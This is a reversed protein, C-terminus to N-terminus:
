DVNQSPAGNRYDRRASFGVLALLLFTITGGIVFPGAVPDKLKTSIGGYAQLVAGSVGIVLLINWIAMRWGRPKESGLLKSNNILAFFAFYAIPLLIAGFTSAVIVLYTKSEHNWIVFWCVGVAVAALAGLIRPLRDDFRGSVEAFALSNTLTLIIITSFGMGLTGIGLLWRAWNSSEGFVPQLTASLQAADPKVM